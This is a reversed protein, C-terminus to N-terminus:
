AFTDLGAGLIVYQGVGQGAHEAVLDEILRARAVISARFLCTFHPDMDPRRRWGEDPAALVLDREREPRLTLVWDAPMPPM